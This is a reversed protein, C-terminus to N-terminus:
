RGTALRHLPRLLNVAHGGWHEAFDSRVLSVDASTGRELQALARGAGAYIAGLERSVSVVTADISDFGTPSAARRLAAALRRELELSEGSEAGTAEVAQAAAATEPLVAGALYLRAVANRVRRAFDPV